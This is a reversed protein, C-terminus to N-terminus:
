STGPINYIGIVYGFSCYLPQVKAYVSTLEYRQENQGFFGCNSEDSRFDYSKLNVRVHLRVPNDM